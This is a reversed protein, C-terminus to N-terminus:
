NLYWDFKSPWMSISSWVCQIIKHFHSSVNLTLEYKNFAVLDCAWSPWSWPSFWFRCSSVRVQHLNFAIAIPKFSILELSDVENVKSWSNIHQVILLSADHHYISIWLHELWGIHLNLIKLASLALKNKSLRAIGFTDSIQRAVVVKETNKTQDM